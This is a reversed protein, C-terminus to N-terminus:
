NIEFERKVFADLFARATLPIDREIVFGGPSIEGFIGRGRDWIQQTILKTAQVIAPPTEAFGWRASVAYLAGKAFLVTPRTTFDGYPGGAQAAEDVAFLWGNDGEYFLADAVNQVTATGAVYRGVQLYNTGKGRYNRVTPDSDVELAAFYGVPRKCYLDIFSSVGEIIRGVTEKQGDTKVETLVDTVTEDVTAYLIPM